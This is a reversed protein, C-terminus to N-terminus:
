KLKLKQTKVEYTIFGIVIVFSILWYIKFLHLEIIEQM